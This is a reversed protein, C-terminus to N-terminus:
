EPIIFPCDMLKKPNGVPFISSFDMTFSLIIRPYDLFLGFNIGPYDFSLGPAIWPCDLSLGQIIWTFHSSSVLFVSSYGLSLLPDDQSFWPVIWPIWVFIPRFSQLKTDINKFEWLINRNNVNQGFFHLFIGKRETGIVIM